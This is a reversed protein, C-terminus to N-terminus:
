FILSILEDASHIIITSKPKLKYNQKNNRVEIPCHLPDPDDTAVQASIATALLLTIFFKM